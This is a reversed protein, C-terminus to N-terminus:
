LVKAHYIQWAIDRTSAPGLYTPAADTAMFLELEFPDVNPNSPYFTSRVITYGTERVILNERVAEEDEKKIKYTIGWM